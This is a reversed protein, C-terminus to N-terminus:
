RLGRPARPACERCPLRGSRPTPEYGGLIGSNVDVKVESRPDAAAAPLSAAALAKASRTRDIRVPQGSSGGM